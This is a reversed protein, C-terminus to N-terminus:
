QTCMGKSTLGTFNYPKSVTIILGRNEQGAGGVWKETLVKTFTNPSPPGIYDM